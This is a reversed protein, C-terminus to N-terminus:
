RRDDKKENIIIQRLYEWDLTLPKHYREAM